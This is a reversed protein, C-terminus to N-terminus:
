PSTYVSALPTTVCFFPHHDLLKHADVMGPMVTSETYDYIDADAGMPQKIEDRPGIGAIKSGDLLIANNKIPIDAIGDIINNCLIIKFKSNKKHETM